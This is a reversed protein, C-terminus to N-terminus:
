ESFIDEEVKHVMFRSETCFRSIEIPSGNKSSIKTFKLFKFAKKLIIESLVLQFHKIYYYFMLIIKLINVIKEILKDSTQTYCVNEYGYKNLREFICRLIDM